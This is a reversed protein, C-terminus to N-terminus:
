VGLNFKNQDYKKNFIRVQNDTLETRDTTSVTKLTTSVLHQVISNVVLMPLVDFAKCQEIVVDDSCYFNVDEDFGGIKEWLSREIMFCWGSLHRGTKDGITNVRIDRQRSDRPEKPSVLPHNAKILENLWNPKFLLDNNALMAYHATGHKIGFNGYANYNFEFDPYLVSANRYTAVKSSEVVIVNVKIGKAGSICTNIANQTILQMQRTKGDSIIVVDVVAPKRSEVVYPSDEQAVTTKENYDYHYLVKDISHETRLHTKLQKSYASDEGNKINLFPVKLSIEKKVCCIHNPLRHYTSETNYDKAYKNSYHCIKAPEGNLSVSALFTIVDSKSETADLLLSIYDPEIRDDDDVFVIYEGQAIDILNNRKSGLMREKNDILVLIEVQKKQEPFLKELQGYLMDLCKPLFTNRREAVSPVLISLKM